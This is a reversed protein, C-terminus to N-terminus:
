LYMWRFDCNYFYSVVVKQMPPISLIHNVSHEDEEGRLIRDRLLYTLLRAAWIAAMAGVLWRRAAVGGSWQAAYLLALFGLGGTWAVDVIGADGTKQQLRWLLFLFAALGIWGAFVLALATM